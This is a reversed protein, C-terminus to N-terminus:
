LAIYIFSSTIHNYLHIFLVSPRCSSPGVAFSSAVVVTSATDIAISLCHFTPHIKLHLSCTIFLLNFWVEVNVLTYPYNMLQLPMITSLVGMTPKCLYIYIFLLTITNLANAKYNYRIEIEIPTM